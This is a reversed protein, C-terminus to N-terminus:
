CRDSVVGTSRLETQFSCRLPDTVQRHPPNRRVSFIKKERICLLPVCHSMLDDFFPARIGVSFSCVELDLKISQIQNPLAAYSRLIAASLGIARHQGLLLSTERPLPDIELRTSQYWKNYFRCAFLSSHFLFV